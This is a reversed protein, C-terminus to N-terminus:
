EHSFGSTAAVGPPEGAGPEPAFCPFGSAPDIPTNGADRRILVRYGHGGVQFEGANTEGAVRFTADIYSAILPFTSLLTRETAEEVIVLPVRQSQMQEIARGQDRASSWHPPLFVAMGAAFGREAFFFIQPAFWTILLRSDPATCRRIYRVLGGFERGEPFYDQVAPSGALQATIYRARSLPAEALRPLLAAILLGAALWREPWMGWGQSQRVERHRWSQGLIAAALIVALPVAAGVRAGIPDRLVFASVCTCMVAGVLVRQESARLRGRTWRHWLVSLLACPVTGVILVYVVFEATFAPPPLRFLQSRAGERIAYTVIQRGAEPLGTTLQVFILAPALAVVIAGSYAGLDAVIQSPRAWRRLVIATIFAVLIYLGNDYRFLGALATIAGAACLRARTPRDFYRWCLWVGLTYFLVKDFDYYRPPLHWALAAAAVGISLSGTASASLWFVLAGATAIAVSALVAEGLLSGGTLEQAAASLYLSLFYGPDRYDAFPHESYAVIQRARSVRDFHDNLFDVDIFALHAMALWVLAALALKMIRARDRRAAYARARRLWAHVRPQPEAAAATM